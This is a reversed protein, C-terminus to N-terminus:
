AADPAGNPRRRRPWTVELLGGLGDLGDPEISASNTDEGPNRRRPGDPSSISVLFRSFGHAEWLRDLFGAIAEATFGRDRYAAHIRCGVEVRGADDPPGHLGISGIVRRTRAPDVLVIARGPEPPREAGASRGTSASRQVLRLQTVHDVERAFGKSVAAGIARAAADVDCALLADVFADSLPPLELRRTRIVDHM